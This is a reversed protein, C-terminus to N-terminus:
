EGQHDLERDCEQRYTAIEAQLDAFTPDDKFYGFKDLWSNNLQNPLPIEVQVVEVKHTLYDVLQSKLQEIAADRSQEVVVVEPWNKARAVYKGNERSLIVDYIM